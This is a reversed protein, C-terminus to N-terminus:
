HPARDIDMFVLHAITQAYLASLNAGLLLIILNPLAAKLIKM